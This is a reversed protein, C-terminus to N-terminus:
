SSSPHVSMSSIREFEDFFPIRSHIDTSFLASVVPFPGTGLANKRFLSSITEPYKVRAPLLMNTVFCIM